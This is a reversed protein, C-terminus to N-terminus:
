PTTMGRGQVCSGPVTSLGLEGGFGTTEIVVAAAGAVGVGRGDVHVTAAGVM